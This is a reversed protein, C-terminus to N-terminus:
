FGKKGRRKEMLKKETFERTISKVRGKGVSQKHSHLRLYRPVTSMNQQVKHLKYDM